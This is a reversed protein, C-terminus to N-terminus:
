TFVSELVRQIEEEFFAPHEAVTDGIVIIGPKSYDIMKEFTLCVKLFSAINLDQISSTLYTFRSISLYGALNCFRVCNDLEARLRWRIRYM